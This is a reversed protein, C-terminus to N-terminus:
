SFVINFTWRRYGLGALNIWWLWTSWAYHYIEVIAEDWWENIVVLVSLSILTPNIGAYLKMEIGVSQSYYILQLWIFQFHHHCSSSSLPSITYTYNSQNRRRKYHSLALADLRLLLFCQHCVFLGSDLFTEDEPWHSVRSGQVYFNAARQLISLLAFNSNIVCKWIIYCWRILLLAWLDPCNHIILGYILHKM